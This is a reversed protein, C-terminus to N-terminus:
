MTVVPYAHIAVDATMLVLNHEIAQAILMRDFPDRHLLPLQVLRAASPEDLSLSHILHRQRAKPILLDPSEPLWLKGIQHKVVIEWASVV